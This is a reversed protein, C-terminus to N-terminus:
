VTTERVDYEDWGATLGYLVLIDILLVTLAWIPAVFIVFVTFFASIAAFTIGLLQGLVHRQFILWATILQAIGVILWFWGWATISVDFLVENIAETTDDESIAAIGSIANYAGVVAAMVGAFTPWGSRVTTM